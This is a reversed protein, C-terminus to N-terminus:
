ARGMPGVPPLINGDTDVGAGSKVVNQVTFYSRVAAKAWQKNTNDLSSHESLHHLLVIALRFKQQDSLDKDEVRLDNSMMSLAPAPDGPWKFGAIIFADPVDFGALISNWDRDQEDSM